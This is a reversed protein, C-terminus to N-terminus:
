DELLKNSKNRNETALLVQLNWPVHLGCVLKGQLPIIHDVHYEQGTYLRFMQAITYLEKIQELEVSTLWSPVANLKTAHRKANKANIKDKNVRRYEAQYSALREKNDLRYKAQKEAIEDKNDERYRAKLVAIKDKNARRYKIVREIVQEKNIVYRIANDIAVQDKNELYYDKVCTKCQYSYGDKRSKNKSFDSFLKEEKCTSCKKYM